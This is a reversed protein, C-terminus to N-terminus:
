PPIIFGLTLTTRVYGRENPQKMRNAKSMKPHAVGRTSAGGGVVVGGIGDGSATGLTSAFIKGFKTATM